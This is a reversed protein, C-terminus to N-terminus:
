PSSLLRAYLSAYEGAMHELSFREANAFGSERQTCLQDFQQVIIAASGRPDTIDIKLAEQGAVTTMPAKDNVIVPCGCSQAEVIPLSFGENFSPVLIATARRYLGALVEDTPKEVCVVGEVLMEAPVPEGAFILSVQLAPAQRRLEQVLAVAGPRNKYPQNGGVCLLFPTQVDVNADLGTFSRYAGNWVLELRKDPLGLIRRADALTADSVCAVMRARGLAKRNLRQFLKGTPGTQWYPLEGMASRIALVDHCTVLHPNSQLWNVYLANGQDCVHVLDVTAALQRLQRPYLVFKDVYAPWKGRGGFRKPAASYSTEIGLKGLGASLATPFSLMSHQGDSAYNGVLLVKM